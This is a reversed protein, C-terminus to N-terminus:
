ILWINWEKKAGRLKGPRKPDKKISRIIYRFVNSISSLDLWIVSTANSFRKEMCVSYNGEIIWKKHTTIIKNHETILIENSVREWNTNPKHALLDLHYLPIKTKDSLVSALTSKGSSSCGIICIREGLIEYSIM